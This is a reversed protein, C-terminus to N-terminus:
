ASITAAVPAMLTSTALNAVIRDNHIMLPASLVDRLDRGISFPGDQRYGALGNTRLAAMVASVALDSVDVKLMTIATQFDLSALMAPDDAAAEFREIAQEILARAQKLNSVARAYHIAGPPAAGGAGRMATRTFAQAKEIARAAIGAWASSWLIHSVPTMTRGHIDAYRTELVQAECGRALLRFGSSCTGRMGLTEWGALPELTYDEKLFACLVQDSPAAEASRRAVTVIGDAQAGYSIVTAARDLRILGAEREIAAASARVNGGGNGETTSSALLLQEDAIRRMLTELWPTGRGHRVLCAVKTQHMAFIMATSSCARGLAYCIDALMRVSAGEGGLEIPIAAGFLRNTRLADCAEAPFRADADVAEAHLAATAAVADTREKLGAAGAGCSTSAASHQNTM